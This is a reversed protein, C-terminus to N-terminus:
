NQNNCTLRDSLLGEIVKHLAAHCAESKKVEVPTDSHSKPDIGATPTLIGPILQEVLCFMHKM